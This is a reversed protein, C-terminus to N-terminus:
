RDLMLDVKEIIFRLNPSLRRLLVSVAITLSVQAFSETMVKDYENM